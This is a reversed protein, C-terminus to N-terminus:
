RHPAGQGLRWSQNSIQAKMLVRYGGYSAAGTARQSTLVWAVVQKPRQEGFVIIEDIPKGTEDTYQAAAVIPNSTISKAAAMPTMDLFDPTLDVTATAEVASGPVAVGAGKKAQTTPAARRRKKKTGSDSSTAPAAPTADVTARPAGVRVRTSRTVGDAPSVPGLGVALVAASLM